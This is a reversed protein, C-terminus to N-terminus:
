DAGWEMRVFADILAAREKVNKETWGKDNQIIKGVARTAALGCALYMSAKELPTKDKLSSNVRPPLMTLNGIHHIFEDGASQPQIHEISKSPDDAWIKNWETANLPVGAAEALYEDYRYLIYRLNETWGEYSNDWYGDVSLIEDIRWGKGLKEIEEIIQDPPMSTTAIQYGLRVYKGVEYRSDGSGLGFIKFSVKEWRSLLRETVSTEFGRLAVATGVFRAHSIRTVARLRVNSDLAEVAKVVDKLHSGVNAITSPTTGAVRLLELVADEQSVIRNPRSSLAWTGAFRLAEDGLSGRLGLIRYIDQWNVHMEKVFEARSGVDEIREYLLAMLQSKLKDIWKVELGRSNLVEFVRYVTSEDVLEHYIVSMKNKIISLLEIIPHEEAWKKVFKESERIANLINNDAYSNVDGTKIVGTRIYESFISSSDHNTQLLILSHDDDKVLLESLERKIKVNPGTSEDIYKEIAKIIIIITTIRQQGDVIEVTKYLDSGILRVDRALAVITAMFHERGSRKVDMIDNFFDDRQRTEWAYARQYEAIRFLRDSLLMSITLHMPNLQM